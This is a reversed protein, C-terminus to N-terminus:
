WELSVSVTATREFFNGNEFELNTEDLVNDIKVDLRLRHRNFVFAKSAAIDHRYFSEAFEGGRWDVDSQHYSMLSGSWGDGLQQTIMLSATHKPVREKNREVGNPAQRWERIRTFYLRTNAYQFYVATNATPRWKIQMDYGTIRWNKSNTFFHARSVSGKVSPQGPIDEDGDFYDDSAVWDQHDVTWKVHDIGGEMKEHFARWDLDLKGDFFSGFYALELNDIEEAELNDDSLLDYDTFIEYARNVVERHSEFVSPSRYAKSASVRFNHQPTLQYHLSARPSVHTDDLQQNEVMMGINTLWKRGMKWEVNSFGYLIGYDITGGNNLNTPAYIDQYKYGVGNLVRLHKNFTYQHEFEAEWLTSERKGWGYNMLPDPNGELYLYQQQQSWGEEVSLLRRYGHDSKSNYLSLYARWQQREEVRQWGGTIWYSTNKDDAFDEIHDGDGIGFSGDSVGLELNFSDLLTPTIVANFAAHGVSTEDPLDDFGDNQRHSIRWQAYGNALEFNSRINVNRTNKGGATARIHTGSEEVPSKTTISVAGVIANSGYAPVNSGRVVEIRKIDDPTIGLSSWSVTPYTPVYVSRGNIRVELRRPDDDTLDHGSLGALSGNIYFSMFGPVLRFVEVLNNPALAAIMDSDIVTVSSPSHHRPQAMRAGASVIPIDVLLDSEDYYNDSDSVAATSAAFLLSGIFYLPFKSVTVEKTVKSKGAIAWRLYSIFFSM